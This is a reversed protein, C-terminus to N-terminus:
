HEEDFYEDHEPYLMELAEDVIEDLEYLERINYGQDDLSRLINLCMEVHDSEPVFPKAAELCELFVESLEIRTM